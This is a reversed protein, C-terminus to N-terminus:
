TQDRALQDYHEQDLLAGTIRAHRYKKVYHLRKGDM